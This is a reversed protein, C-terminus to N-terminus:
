RIGLVLMIKDLKANLDELTVEEGKEAERPKPAYHAEIEAIRKEVNWPQACDGRQKVLDRAAEGYLYSGNKWGAQASLRCGMCHVAGDSYVFTHGSLRPVNIKAERNQASQIAMRKLKSTDVM